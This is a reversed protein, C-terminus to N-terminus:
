LALKRSSGKKSDNPKQGFRRKFGLKLTDKFITEGTPQRLSNLKQEYVGGMVDEKSLWGRQMGHPATLVVAHLGTGEYTGGGAERIAAIGENQADMVMKFPRITLGKENAIAEIAIEEQDDPTWSRAGATFDLPNDLKYVGYLRPLMEAAHFVHSSSWLRDLEVVHPDDISGYVADEYKPDCSLAPVLRTQM